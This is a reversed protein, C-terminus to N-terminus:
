EGPRDVITAVADGIEDSCRAPDEHPWTFRANEKLRVLWGSHTGDPDALMVSSITYNKWTPRDIPALWIRIRDSKDKSILEIAEALESQSQRRLNAAIYANTCVGVFDTITTSNRQAANRQGLLAGLWKDRLEGARQGGTQEPEDFTNALALSQTQVREFFQEKWDLKAQLTELWSVYVLRRSVLKGSRELKTGRRPM